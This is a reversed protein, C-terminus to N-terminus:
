HKAVRLSSYAKNRHISAYTSLYNHKHSIEQATCDIYLLRKTSNAYRVGAHGFHIGMYVSSPMKEMFIYFAWAGKLLKMLTMLQFCSTLPMWSLILVVAVNVKRSDDIIFVLQCNM